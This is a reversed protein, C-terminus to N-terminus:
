PTMPFEFYLLEKGSKAQRVGNVYLRDGRESKADFYFFGSASDGPPLMKAVFARAAIEPSDLRNKKKPLPVPLQTVERPQASRGIHYLDEPGVAPAHRGDSAVLSVELQRLDLSDKGKNEIVVLVPLVGRRLMDVKKGFAEETLEETDYPKAGITVQDASQHAYSEASAARFQQKEAGEIVVLGSAALAISLIVFRLTPSV